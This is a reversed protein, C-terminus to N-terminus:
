VAQWFEAVYRAFDCLQNEASIWHKVFAGELLPCLVAQLHRLNMVRVNHARM